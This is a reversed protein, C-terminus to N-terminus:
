DIGIDDLGDILDDIQQIIAKRKQKAKEVLEASASADKIRNNYYGIVTNMANLRATLNMQAVQEKLAQQALHQAAAAKALEKRNQEIATRNLKIEQRQQFITLLLAAFALGSFLSNVAGFMDGITGRDGWNDSAHYIVWGSAAWVLVVFFIVFAIGTIPIRIGSKSIKM